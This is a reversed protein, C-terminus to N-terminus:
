TYRLIDENPCLGLLPISPGSSVYNTIKVSVVTNGEMTKVLKCVWCHLHRNQTESSREIHNENANGKTLTPNHKLAM